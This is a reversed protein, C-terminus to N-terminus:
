KRAVAIPGGYRAVAINVALIEIKQFQDQMRYSKYIKFIKDKFDEIWNDGPEM